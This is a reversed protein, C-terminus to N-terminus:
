KEGKGKEIRQQYKQMSKLTNCRAWIEALGVMIRKKILENM